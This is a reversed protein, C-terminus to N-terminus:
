QLCSSLFSLCYPLSLYISSSIVRGSDTVAVQRCPGEHSHNTMYANAKPTHMYTFLTQDCDNSPVRGQLIKAKDSVRQTPLPLMIDYILVSHHYCSVRYQGMGHGPFTSLQAHDYAACKEVVVGRM